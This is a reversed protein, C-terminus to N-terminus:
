PKRAETGKRHRKPTQAQLGSPVNLSCGPLESDQTAQPRRLALGRLSMRLGRVAFSESVVLCGCVSDAIWVVGGM